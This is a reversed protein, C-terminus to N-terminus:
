ISLVKFLKETILNSRLNNKNDENSYYKKIDNSQKKNNKITDSIVKDLKDEKLIISENDILKNRIFLWKINREAYPTMKEKFNQENIEKTTNKKKEDELLNKLFSEQKSQPAEITTKKIFYDTIM